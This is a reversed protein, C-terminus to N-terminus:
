KQWVREVFEAVDSMLLEPQELAAFHGGVDHKKYYVLNGTTRAFAEPLALLEKPFSSFGM